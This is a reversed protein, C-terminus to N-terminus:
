KSGIVKVVGTGVGTAARTRKLIGFTTREPKAPASVASRGRVAKQKGVSGGQVAGPEINASIGPASVQVRVSLGLAEAFTNLTALELNRRGEFRSIAAQKVKSRRAVEEQSVDFLKRLESLGLAPKKGAAVSKVIQALRRGALAVSSYVEDPRDEIGGDSSTFFGFGASENWSFTVPAGCVKVDIWWVGNKAAPWDIHVTADRDLEAIADLMALIDQPRKM